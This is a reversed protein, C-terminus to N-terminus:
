DSMYNNQTIPYVLSGDAGTVSFEEPTPHTQGYAVAMLNIVSNSDFYNFIRDASVTAGKFKAVLSKNSAMVRINAYVSHLISNIAAGNNSNTNKTRFIINFADVGDIGTSEKTSISGLLYTLADNDFNIGLNNVLDLFDSKVEEFLKINELKHRGKLIIDLNSNIKNVVKTIEALAKPNIISRNKSDTTIM